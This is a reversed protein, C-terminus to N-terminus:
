LESMFLIAKMIKQFKIKMSKINREYVLAYEKM